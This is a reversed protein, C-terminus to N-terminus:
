FNYAYECVSPVVWNHEYLGECVVRLVAFIKRFFDTLFDSSMFFINSFDNCKHFFTATHISSLLKKPLEVYITRPPM